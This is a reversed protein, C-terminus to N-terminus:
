SHWTKLYEVTLKNDKRKTKSFYSAQVYSVLVSLITALLWSSAYMLAIVSTDIYKDAIMM